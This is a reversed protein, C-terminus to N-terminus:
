EDLLFEDMEEFDEEISDKMTGGKSMSGTLKGDGINLNVAGSLGDDSM